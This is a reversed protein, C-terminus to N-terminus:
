GDFTPRWAKQWAEFESRRVRYRAINGAHLSMLETEATEIFRSRDRSDIHAEAFQKIALGAQRKNLKNQIISQIVSALNQRYKLRFSDPEGLSQRIASYRAASRQYAWIFVDRLLDVRNLEYVGLIGDIYSPVPVDVFTLPCLNNQIFPINAALRSVRKNVDFFPQLYPLHVLAFYSQEFPNEIAMATDLVQHFCGKILQPVVLPQFVAGDIGVIDTRLRGGAEPDGLLNDALVAHLNCITYLNFGIEDAQEVLLEIAAKHNLIMQTEAADKQDASEGLELLQQTELLSYTNGELRSSNWSLDILLRNLIKNAYTGAPLRAQEITGWDRLKQRHEDTLYASENPRYRDLFKREYGIPHRREVPRRVLQKVEAGQASVPIYREGEITSGVTVHDVIMETVVPNRYRTARGKGSKKLRGEELLTNLRRLITRRSIDVPFDTVIEDTLAGEPFQSILELLTEYDSQSVQKPM